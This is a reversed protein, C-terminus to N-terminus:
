DELKIGLTSEALQRAEEPSKKAAIYIKILGKLQVQPDNELTPKEYGAADLTATMVRQRETQKRQANKWDVVESDKPWEGRNRLEEASEFADVSGDFKLPPNVPKGYANEITGSFTVKKM